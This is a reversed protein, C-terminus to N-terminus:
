NVTCRHAFSCKSVNCAHVGYVKGDVSIGLTELAITEGGAGADDFILRSTSPVTIRGLVHLSTTLLARM